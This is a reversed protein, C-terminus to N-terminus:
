ALATLRAKVLEGFGLHRAPSGAKLDPSAAAPSDRPRAPRTAKHRCCHGNRQAARCNFEVVIEFWGQGPATDFIMAFSGLGYFYYSVLLWM